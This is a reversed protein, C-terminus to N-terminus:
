RCGGNATKAGRSSAAAFTRRTSCVGEFRRRRHHFRRAARISGPRAPRVRGEVIEEIKEEDLDPKIRISDEGSFM